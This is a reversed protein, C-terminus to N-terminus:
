EKNALASEAIYDAVRLGNAAITLSPNTGGSTPMFSGDVVFANDLGHVKCKSDVVSTSPEKGMKCTGCPHGLNLQIGPTMLLTRCNNFANRGLASLKSLRERLEDRIEYEIKFGSPAKEDLVVRNNSYPKDELIAAFISANGLVWQGIAAPIRLFHRLFGIKSFPTQDFMLRLGYLINYYGAEMGTSQIEGLKEGESIYFDRCAITKNAGKRSAKRPPWVAFYADVHCMLNRGVQDYNNGLGDAWHENVSSLLLAPTSLSGASIVFTNGRIILKNGDSDIVEVSEVETVGSNVEVVSAFELCYLHGTAVAPEVLANGAHMKCQNVCVTGGCEDCGKIYRCGVHIRFPHLGNEKMAQYFLNDRESMAPPAGLQSDELGDLPDRTGKVEFLAEAQKYFPSMDEYSFPWLNNGNIDVSNFDEPRFRQLAAAYFQSSGGFGTGMAPAVESSSGNVDVRLKTPWRGRPISKAQEIENDIPTFQDVIPSYPGKDILLTKIGRRAMEYAVASGGMGAGVIVVPWHSQSATKLDILFNTTKDM